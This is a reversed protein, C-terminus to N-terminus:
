KLSVAFKENNLSEVKFNEQFKKNTIIKFIELNSCNVLCLKLEELRRLTLIASLVSYSFRLSIMNLTLDLIKINEFQKLWIIARTNENRNNSVWHFHLETIRNTKFNKIFEDDLLFQHIKLTRLKNLGLLFNQLGGYDDTAETFKVEFEQLNKFNLRDHNIYPGNFKFKTLNPNEISEELYIPNNFELLLEKVNRAIYFIETLNNISITCNRLELFKLSDKFNELVNLLLQTFKGCFRINEYCNKSNLFTMLFADYEQFYQFNKNDKSARWTPCITRFFVPSRRIVENFRTCTLSANFKETISLHKFIELLIEEPLENITALKEVTPMKPRDIYDGADSFQLLFNFIEILFDEPIDM